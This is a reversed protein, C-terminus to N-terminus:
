RSSPPASLSLFSSPSWCLLQHALSSCGLMSFFADSSAPTTTSLPSLRPTSLISSGGRGADTLLARSIDSLHWLSSNTCLQPSAVISPQRPEPWASSERSSKDSRIQQYYRFVCDVRPGREIIERSLSGALSRRLHRHIMDLWSSRGVSEAEFEERHDGGVVRTGELRARLIGEGPKARLM